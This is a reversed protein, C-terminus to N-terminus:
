WVGALMEAERGQQCSDLLLAYHDDPECQCRHAFDRTKWPYAM